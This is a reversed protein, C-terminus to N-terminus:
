ASKDARSTRSALRGISQSLQAQAQTVAAATTTRGAGILTEVLTTLSRDLEYTLVHDGLASLIRLILDEVRQQQAAPLRDFMMTLANVVEAYIQYQMSESSIVALAEFANLLQEFTDSHYVVALPEDDQEQLHNAHDNVWHALLNRLGHVALLGPAPDAKASSISSWAIDTLQSIGYAPDITIDRQRRLIVKAEIAEAVQQAAKINEARVTAIQDGIVVYTGIAVHFVVEVEIQAGGRADQIAAVLADLHLDNVFGHQRATVPVCVADSLLPSRRTRRLLRTHREQAALTHDHITELIEVPRMQNITTYLLVILLYLAVITLLIALTAGFVPKFPEDVTVLIILSYLSLGVFFGFYFQNHRRRLFQDFVETTMNSATQQLALLLISITISTVTILGTAITGLLDSMAQADTYIWSRLFSGVPELWALTARDIASSIGALLLFSLIVLTPVALFEAFARRVSAYFDFLQGTPQSAGRQRDAAM